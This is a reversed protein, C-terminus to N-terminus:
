FDKHRMALPLQRNQAPPLLLPKIQWFLTLIKGSYQIGGRYHQIERLCFGRKGIAM